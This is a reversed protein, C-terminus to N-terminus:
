VPVREEEEEELQPPAENLDFSIPSINESWARELGNQNENVNQAAHSEGKVSEPSSVASPPLGSWHRRMHGGLAQGTAFMENCYKCRHEAAPVARAVTGNPDAGERAQAAGNEAAGELAEAEPNNNRMHKNHSARHGGLAQHTSFSKNCTSCQYTKSATSAPFSCKRIKEPSESLAAEETKM